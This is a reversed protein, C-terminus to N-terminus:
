MKKKRENSVVGWGRRVKGDRGVGGGGRRFYFLGVEGEGMGEETDKEREKCWWRRGREWNDYKVWFDDCKDFFIWDFLFIM